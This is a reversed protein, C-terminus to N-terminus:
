GHGRETHCLSQRYREEGCGKRDQNQKNSNNNNDVQPMSSSPFLVETPVIGGGICGGLHRCVSTWPANEQNISSIPPNEDTLSAVGPCIARPILFCAWCTMFLLGTFFGSEVAEVETGAELDRSHIEMLGERWSPSFQIILYVRVGLNSKPTTKIVAISFWVLVDDRM